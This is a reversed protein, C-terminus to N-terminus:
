LRTWFTKQLAALFCNISLLLRLWLFGSSVCGGFSGADPIRAASDKIKFERIRGDLWALLSCVPIAEVKLLPNSTHLGLVRYLDHTESRAKMGSAPLVCACM